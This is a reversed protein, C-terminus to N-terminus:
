ENEIALVSCNLLALYLFRGRNCLPKNSTVSFIYCSYIDYLTSHFASIRSVPVYEVISLHSCAAGAPCSCSKRSITTVYNRSSQPWSSFDQSLFLSFEFDTTMLREELCFREHIIRNRNYSNPLFSGVLPFIVVYIVIAWLWLLIVISHELFQSAVKIM